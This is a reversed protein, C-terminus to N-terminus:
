DLPIIVAGNNKISAACQACINPYQNPKLVVNKEGCYLCPYQPKTTKGARRHAITQSFGFILAIDRLTFGTDSLKKIVRKQKEIDIM